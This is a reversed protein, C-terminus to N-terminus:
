VTASKGQVRGTGQILENIDDKQPEKEKNHDCLNRLDGLRQIFRWNSTDIIANDKLLQNYDNISSNKKVIKIKHHQCIIKLHKELVVGAMAGAGRTFGKSNLEKAAELESNFLDAQLVEKIQFLSSEFRKNASKVIGVQSIFLARAVDVQDPINEFSSFETPIYTISKKLSNGTRSDYYKKFDETREPLVAIILYLAESYWIEYKERFKLIPDKIRSNLVSLLEEADKLLKNLDEKFKDINTNM